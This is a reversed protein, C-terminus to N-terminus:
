FHYVYYYDNCPSAANTQVADTSSSEPFCTSCSADIEIITYFQHLKHREDRVQGSSVTEHGDM